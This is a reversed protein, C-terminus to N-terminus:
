SRYGAAIAAELEDLASNLASIQCSIGEHTSRPASDYFQEALAALNTAGLLAASGKAKHMTSQWLSRESDRELESLSRRLEDVLEAVLRRHKEPDRRAIMGSFELTCTRSCEM